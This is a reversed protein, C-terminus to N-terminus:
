GGQSPARWRAASLQDRSQRWLVGAGPAKQRSRTTRPPGSDCGIRYSRSCGAPSDAEPCPGAADRRKPRRRRNGGLTPSVSVHAANSACNGADTRLGLRDFRRPAAADGAALRKLMDGVQEDDQPAAMCTRNAPFRELRRGHGTSSPRVLGVRSPDNDRDPESADVAPPETAKSRIQCRSAAM